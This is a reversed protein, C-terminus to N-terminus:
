ERPRLSRRPRARGQRRLEQRRGRVLLFGRELRQPRPHPSELSALKRALNYPENFNTNVTAVLGIRETLHALAAVLTLPELHAGRPHREVARVQDGGNGVFDAFFAFDFKGHELQKVIKALEDFSPGGAKVGPRRWANAHTGYRQVFVSLSLQRSRQTM